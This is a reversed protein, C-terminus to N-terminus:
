DDLLGAAALDAVRENPVAAINDLGSLELPDPRGSRDSFGYV